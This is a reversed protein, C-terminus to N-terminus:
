RIVADGVYQSKPVGLGTAIRSREGDAGILVRCRMRAGDEFTLVPRDVVACNKCSLFRGNSKDKLDVSTIRKDYQITDPPLKEVLKFNLSYRMLCRLETNPKSFDIHVERMFENKSTFYRVSFFRKNFKTFPFPRTSEITNKESNRQLLFHM